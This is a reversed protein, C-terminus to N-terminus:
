TCSVVAADGVEASVVVADLFVCSEVSSATRAPRIAALSLDSVLDVPSSWGLWADSDLALGQLNDREQRRLNGNDAYPPRRAQLSCKSNAKM